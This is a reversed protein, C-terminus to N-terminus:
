ERSRLVAITQELETTGVERRSTGLASATSKAIHMLDETSQASLDVFDGNLIGDIGFRSGFFQADTKARWAEVASSMSANIVATPGGSHALLARGALKPM